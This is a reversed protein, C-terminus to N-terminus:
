GVITQYTEAIIVLAQQEGVLPTLQEQYDGLQEGLRAMCSNIAEHSATSAYGSVGRKAAECVLEIQERMRAIESSSM